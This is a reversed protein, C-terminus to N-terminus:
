EIAACFLALINLYGVNNLTQLLKRQSATLTLMPRYAEVITGVAQPIDGPKTVLLYSGMCNYQEKLPAYDVLSVIYPKFNIKKELLMKVVECINGNCSEGGDTILILSYNYRLNDLMDNEVAQKLSYAIPSVGAPHLSELRLAM